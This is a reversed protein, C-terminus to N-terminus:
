ASLRDDETISQFGIRRVMGIEKVNENVENWLPTGNKWERMNYEAVAKMDGNSLELIRRQRQASNGHLVMKRLVDMYHGYNNKATYPKLREIWNLIDDKMPRTEGQNNIILEADLGYRMARWKNDRMRWGSPRHMEDLWGYHEEFWEGLSHVFAVIAMAEAMTGPMDAIRIELTGFRPCPRLDGWLDKLSRISDSQEMALCLSQYEQWSSFHYPLGAVPLAESIAARMSALGTDEENEMPTSASLALIHPLFHVFFNHNRVCEETNRMGLHIHMGQMCNFHRYLTQRREELYELRENTNLEIDKNHFLAVRGTGTLVGGCESAVAAAKEALMMLEAEAQQVNRCIGTTIELVHKAGEQHAHPSKMGDIIYQAENMQRFTRADIVGLEFEIGLTLHESPEFALQQEIPALLVSLATGTHDQKIFFSKLWSWLAKLWVIVTGM